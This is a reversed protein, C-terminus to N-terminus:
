GQYLKINNHRKTPDLLGVYNCNKHAEKIIKTGFFPHIADADTIFGIKGSNRCASVAGKLILPDYTLKKRFDYANTTKLENALRLNHFRSSEWSTFLRGDSMRAPCECCNAFKNDGM